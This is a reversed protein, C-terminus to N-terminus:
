LRAGFSKITTIVKDIDDATLRPHLPICLAEENLRECNPLRRQMQGYIPNLHLPHYRVTTYIGQDFLYHALEDRKPVRICYTFYSHRDGRKAEQPTTIWPVEKFAEQYTDWIRKRYAQHGDMKGLQALGIGAAIDSPTMKIFIGAINYEWWRQKGHTSAEFGSKGIGCYRLMRAVDILEPTTTTIGGGEGVALNKIADFSYIGVAGMSGCAKGNYRSDVAHAADEIVPYGLEFIPDLDAPLGAYHVVMIAATKKTICPEIQEVTLNNSALDVDCFVPKQGSLLVAHACFIWTYSPVIVESGPPLDLLKCAMYLSNSGSDVMLFHKLGLREAFRKEFEQVKPGMGMWQNHISEAVQAIEEEGVKSGFVSIM